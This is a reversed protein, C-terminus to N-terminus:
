CSVQFPMVDFDNTTTTYQFLAQSSSAYILTLLCPSVQGLHGHPAVLRQWSPTQEAAPPPERESPPPYTPDPTYSPGPTYDEDDGALLRTFSFGEEGGPGACSASGQSPADLWQKREFWFNIADPNWSWDSRRFANISPTPAQLGLYILFRGMFHHSHNHWALIFLKVSM